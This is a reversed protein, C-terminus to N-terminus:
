RVDNGLLSLYYGLKLISLIRMSPRNGCLQKKWSESRLRYLLVILSALRLKRLKIAFTHLKSYHGIRERYIYLTDVSQMIKGVFATNDEYSKYVVPNDIHLITYGARETQKGFVVDEYGYGTMDAPLPNKQLIDKHALFNVTRFSRYPHRNRQKPTHNQECSLEYKARLNSIATQSDVETKWGGCIIDADDAHRIYTHLFNPNTIDVGADIFLVREYKAERALMNRVAARGVNEKLRILRCGKQQSLIDLQSIVEANDSADDAILIEFDLSTERRAQELLKSVLLSCDDNRTPIAISLYKDKM